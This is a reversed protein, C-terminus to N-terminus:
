KIILNIHFINAVQDTNNAELLQVLSKEYEMMMNFNINMTNQMYTAVYKNYDEASSTQKIKDIDDPTIAFKSCM